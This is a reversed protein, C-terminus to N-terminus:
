IDTSVSNSQMKSANLQLGEKWKISQKLGTGGSTRFLVDVM